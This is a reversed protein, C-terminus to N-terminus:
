RAGVLARARATIGAANPFHMADLGQNFGIPTYRAGLRGVPALLQGFFQEQLRAALEAGFGCFEVAPHVIL